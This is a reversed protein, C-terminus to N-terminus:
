RFSTQRRLKSGELKPTSAQYGDGHQPKDATLQSWRVGFRDKDLKDTTQNVQTSKEWRGRETDKMSAEDAPELAHETQLEQDLDYHQTWFSAITAVSAVVAAMVYVSRISDTYATRM